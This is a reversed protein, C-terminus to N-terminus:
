HPPQPALCLTYKSSGQEETYSVTADSFQECDKANTSDKLKGVIKFEADASGCDVVSVNPTKISGTNQVCDGVSAYQPDRQVGIVILAIVAIPVLFGLIAPRLFLPKGPDMPQGPAGPVPEALRNFKARQPLNILMTIPNFISSGVGWWGQWLSKATMDRHTAIGCTRCFPGELKLFRMRILFGQHGRVTASVAPISGCFRCSLVAGPGIPPVAFGPGPDAQPPMGFPQAPQGFSQPPQQGFSQQYQPPQQVFTQQSQPFTQQSQQGFSQGPQAPPGYGGGAVPPAAYPNNSPPLPPTTSM